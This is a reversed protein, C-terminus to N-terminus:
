GTPSIGSLLNHQSVLFCKPGEPNQLERLAYEYLRGNLTAVLINVQPILLCFQLPCSHAVKIQASMVCSCRFICRVM